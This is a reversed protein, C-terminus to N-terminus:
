GDATSVCEIFFVNYISCMRYVQQAGELLNEVTLAM